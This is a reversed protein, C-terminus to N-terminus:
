DQIKIPMVLSNNITLDSSEGILYVDKGPFTKYLKSHALGSSLFAMLKADNLIVAPIYQYNDSNAFFQGTAIADGAYLAETMSSHIKPKIIVGGICTGPREGCDGDMNALERFDNVFDKVEMHSAGARKVSTQQGATEPAPTNDKKCSYLMGSAIIGIAALAFIQKKM